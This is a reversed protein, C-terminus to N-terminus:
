GRSFGNLLPIDRVAFEKLFAGSVKLFESQFIEPAENKGSFTTFLLRGTM